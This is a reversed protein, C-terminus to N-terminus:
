KKVTHTIHCTSMGMYIQGLEKPFSHPNWRCCSLPACIWLGANVILLAMRSVPFWCVRCVQNQQMYEGKQSHFRTGVVVKYASDKGVPLLHLPSLDTPEWKQHNTSNHDKSGETWHSDERPIPLQLRGAWCWWISKRWRGFHGCWEKKEM